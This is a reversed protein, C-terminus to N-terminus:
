KNVRQRRRLFYRVLPLITDLTPNKLDGYALKRLTGETKGTSAAIRPWSQPGAERLGYRVFELPKLPNLKM